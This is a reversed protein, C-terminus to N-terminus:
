STTEMSTWNQWVDIKSDKLGTALFLHDTFETQTRKADLHHLIQNSVGCGQMLSPALFNKDRGAEPQATPSSSTLVLREIIKNWTLVFDCSNWMKHNLTFIVKRKLMKRTKKGKRPTVKNGELEAFERLENKQGM